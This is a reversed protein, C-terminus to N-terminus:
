KPPLWIFNKLYSLHGAGGSEERAITQSLSGLQEILQMYYASCHQKTIYSLM